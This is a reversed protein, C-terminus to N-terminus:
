RSWRQARSRPSLPVILDYAQVSSPLFALSPLSSFAVAPSICLGDSYHGQVSEFVCLVEAMTRCLERDRHCELSVLLPILISPRILGKGSVRSEECFVVPGFGEIEVLRFFVVRYDGSVKGEM